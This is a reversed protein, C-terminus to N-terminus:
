KKDGWGLVNKALGIFKRTAIKDLCRVSENECLLWTTQPLELCSRFTFFLSFYNKLADSEKQHPTKSANGPQDIRAREQTLSACYFIYIQNSKNSALHTDPSYDLHQFLRNKIKKPDRKERLHEHWFLVENTEEKQKRKSSLIFFICPENVIASVTFADNLIRRWKVSPDPKLSGLESSAFANWNFIGKGKRLRTLRRTNDVCPNPFNQVLWELAADRLYVCNSEPIAKSLQLDNTLLLHGNIISAGGILADPTSLDKDGRLEGAKRAISEDVDIITFNKGIISTLYLDPDYGAEDKPERILHTLLESVVVTSICLDIKGEFGARFIPDLYDSWPKQDGLYYRVCNTDLAVKRRVGDDGQAVEQIREMATSM